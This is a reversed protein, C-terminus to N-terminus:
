SSCAVDHHIFWNFLWIRWLEDVFKLIEREREWDRQCIMNVNVTLDVPSLTADSNVKSWLSQDVTSLKRPTLYYLM